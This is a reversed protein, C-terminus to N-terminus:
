IGAKTQLYALLAAITADEVKNGLQLLFAKLRQKAGVRCAPRADPDEFEHLASQLDASEQGGFRNVLELFDKAQSGFNATGQVSQVVTSEVAHVIQQNINVTIGAVATEATATLQKIPTLDAARPLFTDTTPVLADILREIQRWTQQDSTAVDFLESQLSHRIALMRSEREQMLDLDLRRVERAYRAVKDQASARDMGARSLQIVAAASDDVCTKLFDTFKDFDRIFEQRNMSDDGFFEYVRGAATRYGDQRVGRRGTDSLWDRFLSLLKDTEASYLRGSPIYVRFLLNGDSPSARESRGSAELSGAELRHLTDEIRQAQLHSIDHNIQAALPALPGGSAGRIAIERVLFSTLVEALRAGSVGLVDASSQGTGTLSADDLPALQAAIGAQISELLTTHGGVSAVPAPSTFVEGVVKALLEAKDPDGPFVAETTSLLATSGAQTLARTQDNGLVVSRASRKRIGSAVAEVLWSGLESAVFDM